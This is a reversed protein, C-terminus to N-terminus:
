KKHCRCNPHAEGCKPCISETSDSSAADYAGARVRQSGVRIDSVYDMGTARTRKEAEADCFDAIDKSRLMLDGAADYDWVVKTKSM